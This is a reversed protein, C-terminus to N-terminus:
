ASELERTWEGAPNGSTYEYANVYQVRRDHMATRVEYMLRDEHSVMRTFLKVGGADRAIIRHSHTVDVTPQQMHHIRKFTKVAGFQPEFEM